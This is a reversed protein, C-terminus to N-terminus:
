DSKRVQASARGYLQRALRDLYSRGKEGDELAALWGAPIWDIGLYAGSLAGAMAAITDTDGGLLIASAITDTYSTSHLVFCAIATVVSEHAQIGNGLVNLDHPAGIKAATDLRTRYEATTARRRLVSWFETPDIRDSTLVVGVALALL